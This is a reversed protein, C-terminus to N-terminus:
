GTPHPPSVASKLPLPVCWGAGALTTLAPSHGQEEERGPQLTGPAERHDSTPALLKDRAKHEEDTVEWPAPLAADTLGELHFLTEPLSKTCM